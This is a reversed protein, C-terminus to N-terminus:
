DYLKNEFQKKYGELIERYPVGYKKLRDSPYNEIVKEYNKLEIDMRQVCHKLEEKTLTNIKKIATLINM